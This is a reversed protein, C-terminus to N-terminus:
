RERERSKGREREGRERQREKEKGNMRAFKLTTSIARTLGSRSRRRAQKNARPPPDDTERGRATPIDM